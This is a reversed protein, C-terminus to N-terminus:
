RPELALEVLRDILEPYDIGTAEWLKPFMSTRTFGPITNIENLVPNGSEHEVFFDVRAMGEADIAKFARLAIDTLRRVQGASLNAPIVLNALGDTYKAEYDYFEHQSLVEGFVSVLPRDNGLIGCEIERGSIAKEVIIKRDHRGAESVAAWLDDKSTAKSIGVSSGMHCPKVFVPFGLADEVDSALVEASSSWERMTFVRYPGVPLGAHEFVAKMMAKDMGVASATIGSGVYRIGALELFGQVTGDEGFPGHLLPLIVDVAGSDAGTDGGAAPVLAHRSVNAAMEVTQHGDAEVETGLLLRTGEGMLWSGQKTIGILVAEYKEPDIADVVSRASALSVEHEESQGGFLIGLRIKRSV